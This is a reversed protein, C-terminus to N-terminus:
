HSHNKPTTLYKLIAKDHAKLTSSFHHSGDGKAVFYLEDGNDPHLAAYIADASALAIPTPPLGYHLYTNYPSSFRMDKRHLKGTYAAGLAYIVTPDIQLRMRKLLRRYIVGSIKTREAVDGTEQQVLSAAILAQYPTKYVLGTTRTKWNTKLVIQLAMAARQLIAEDSDPWTFQYTEPLFLGEPNQQPLNLQKAIETPTLGKLKHQLYPNSELVQLAQRFTWGDVLTVEYRSVKGEAFMNIIQQLSMGSTLEYEGGQLRNGVGELRIIIRFLLPHKIVGREVLDNALEHSNAGPTFVYTIKEQPFHQPRFLYYTISLLALVIIFLIIRTSKRKFSM